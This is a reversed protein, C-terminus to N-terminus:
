GQMTIPRDLLRLPRGRHPRSDTLVATSPAPRATYKCFEVFQSAIFLSPINRYSGNNAKTLHYLYSVASALQGATVLPGLKATGSPPKSSLTDIIYGDVAGNPMKSSDTVILDNTLPKM